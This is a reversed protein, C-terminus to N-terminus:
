PNLLKELWKTATQKAKFETKAITPEVVRGTKMQNAADYWVAEYLHADPADYVSVSVAIEGVKLDFAYVSEGKDEEEDEEHELSAFRDASSGALVPPEVTAPWLIDLQEEFWSFGERETDFEAHNVEKWEPDEEEHRKMLEAILDGDANEAFMLGYIWGDEMNVRDRIAGETRLQIFSDWWSWAVDAAAFQVDTHLERMRCLVPEPYGQIECFGLRSISGVFNGTREGDVEQNSITVRYTALGIIVDQTGKEERTEEKRSDFSMSKQAIPQLKVKCTISEINFGQIETLDLNALEEGEAPDITIFGEAVLKIFAAQVQDNNLLDSKLDSKELYGTRKLKSDIIASGVAAVAYGHPALLEHVKTTISM